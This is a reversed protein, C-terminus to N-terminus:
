DIFDHFYDILVDINIKTLLCHEMLIGYILGVMLQFVSFDERSNQFSPFDRWLVAVHPLYCRHM